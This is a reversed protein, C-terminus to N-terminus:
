LNINLEKFTKSLVVNVDYNAASRIAGERLNSLFTKDSYLKLIAKKLAEVNRPPILMGNVGDLIVEPNANFDTAIAPVGAIFSDILTGPFGEGTFYTPLLLVDYSALKKYGNTSRLDLFGKYSINYASLEDFYEKTYPALLSGYFDVSLDPNNISKIADVIEPIGKEPLIRSLFVLRLQSTYNHPSTPTFILRKFNDVKIVNSFGMEILGNRMFDGQVAITTLKQYIFKRNISQHKLNSVFDGGAVFWHIKRKL